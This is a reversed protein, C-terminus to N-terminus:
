RPEDEDGSDTTWRMGVLSFAVLSLILLVLLLCLAGWVNMGYATAREVGLIGAGLVALMAPSLWWAIDDEDGEEGSPRDPAWAPPRKARAVLIWLVAIVLLGGAIVWIGSQRSGWLRNDGLVAPLVGFFTFLGLALKILQRLYWERASEYQAM